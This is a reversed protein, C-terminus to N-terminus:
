LMRVSPNLLTASSDKNMFRLAYDPHRFAGVDPDYRGHPADNLNTVHTAMTELFGEASFFAGLESALILGVCDAGDIPDGVEDRPQLSKIMMSPSTRAPLLNV